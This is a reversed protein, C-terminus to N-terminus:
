FPYHPYLGGTQPTTDNYVSISGCVAIRGFHKMQQLAVDSFQGGVQFWLLGTLQM